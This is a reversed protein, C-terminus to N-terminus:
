FVTFRGRARFPEPQDPGAAPRRPLWRRVARRYAAYPEGFRTALHPEEYCTVLLHFAAALAGAYILLAASRFLGAEGSVILLAAVYIPNRVWRYPGAAVVRRPPDWVGPTGQGVAAFVRVCSLYLLVGAAIVPAAYWGAPAPVAGRRALILWPGYVGGAGPVVLTFALNRLALGPRSM